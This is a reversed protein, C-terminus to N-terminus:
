LRPTLLAYLLVGMALLWGTLAVGRLTSLFFPSFFLLFFWSGCFLIVLPIEFVGLGHRGQPGLVMQALLTAAFIVQMSIFVAREGRPSPPKQMYDLPHPTLWASSPAPVQQRSAVSAHAEAVTEDEYDFNSFTFERLGNTNRIRALCSRVLRFDPVAWSGVGGGSVCLLYIM